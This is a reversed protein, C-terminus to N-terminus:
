MAVDEAVQEAENSVVAQESVPEPDTATPEQATAAPEEVVPETRKQLKQFNALPGDRFIELLAEAISLNKSLAGANKKEDRAAKLASTAEEECARLAADVGEYTKAASLQSAIASKLTEQAAAIAAEHKKQQPEAATLIEDQETIRNRLAKALGDLAIVDFQGRADPKKAFVAPLAIQLSEEFNLKKMMTMLSTGRAATDPEDPVATRLFELDEMMKVYQEKKNTAAKVDKEDAQKAEDAKNKEDRATRFAEAAAALAVKKEQV